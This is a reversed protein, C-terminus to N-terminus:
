AFRRLAYLRDGQTPSAVNNAFDMIESFAAFCSDLDAIEAEDKGLDTAIQADTRSARFTQWDNYMEEWERLFRIANSAHSEALRAWTSWGTDPDYPM